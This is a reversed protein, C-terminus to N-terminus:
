TGSHNGNGPEGRSYIVLSGRRIGSRDVWDVMETGSGSGSIVVLFEETVCKGDFM